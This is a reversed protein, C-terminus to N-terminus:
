DAGVPDHVGQGREDVGATRTGLVAGLWDGQSRATSTAGEELPELEHIGCAVTAPRLPIQDALQLV